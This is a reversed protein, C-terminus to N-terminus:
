GPGGSGASLSTVRNFARHEFVVLGARPRSRSPTGLTLEAVSLGVVLAATFMSNVLPRGFESRGAYEADLHMPAPNITMTTFLVNDTETVTRRTVHQVHTGVPLQEFWRGSVPRGTADQGQRLNM